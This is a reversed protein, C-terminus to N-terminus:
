PNGTAAIESSGLDFNKGPDGDKNIYQTKGDLEFSIFFSLGKNTGDVSEALKRLDAIELGATLYKKDPVNVTTSPGGRSYSQYSYGKEVAITLPIAVAEGVNSGQENAFDKVAMILMPHSIRKEIMNSDMLNCDVLVNLCSDSIRGTRINGAGLGDVHFDGKWDWASMSLLEWDSKHQINVEHQTGGLLKIVDSLSQPERGNMNQAYLNRAETLNIQGDNNSDIRKLDQEWDKKIDSIMFSNIGDNRITTM